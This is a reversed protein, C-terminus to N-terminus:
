EVNRPSAKAEATATSEAPFAQSAPLLLEGVAAVVASAKSRTNL